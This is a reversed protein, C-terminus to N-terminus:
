DRLALGKAIIRHHHSDQGALGQAPLQRSHYAVARLAAPNILCSPKPMQRHLQPRQLGTHMYDRVSLLVGVKGYNSMTSAAGVLIAHLRWMVCLTRALPHALATIRSPTSCASAMHATNQGHRLRDGPYPSDTQGRRAYEHTRLGRTAPPQPSVTRRTDLGSSPTTSTM